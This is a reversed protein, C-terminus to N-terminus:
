GPNLDEAAAPPAAILDQDDVDWDSSIDVDASVPVFDEFAVRELQRIYSGGRAIKVIEDVVSVLRVPVLRSHQHTTEPEVVLHTVDGVEPDVVINSVTGFTGEESHVRQGRRFKM